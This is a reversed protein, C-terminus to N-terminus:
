IGLATRLEEVTLGAKKLKEEISLKPEDKPIHVKLGDEAQKRSLIGCIILKNERIYVDDCNLEQKLQLGNIKEPIDFEYFNM